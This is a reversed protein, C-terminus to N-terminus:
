GPALGKVLRVLDLRGSKMEEEDFRCEIKAITKLSRSIGEQMFTRCERAACPRCIAAMKM